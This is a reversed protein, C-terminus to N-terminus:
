RKISAILQMADTAARIPRTGQELLQEAKLLAVQETMSDVNSAELQGSYLQGTGNDGPASVLPPGSVASELFVCGGLSILGRPNNFQSLLIQGATVATNGGKPVYNVTGDQAISVGTAGVPVNINPILPYGDGIGVVLDGECNQFLAGNRTYGTGDGVNPKLRIKLFGQDEIAVDTNIGTSELRGQTLDLETSTSITGDAAPAVILRQRKFAQTEANALNNALVDIRAQLARLRSVEADSPLRPMSKEPARTSAMASLSSATSTSLDTLRWTIAYIGFAMAVVVGLRTIAMGIAKDTATM